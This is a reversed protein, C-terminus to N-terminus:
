RSVSEPAHGHSTNTANPLATVSTNSQCRVAAPNTPAHTNTTNDGVSSTGNGPSVTASRRIYTGRAANAGSTTTPPYAARFFPELRKKGRVPLGDLAPVAIATVVTKMVATITTKLRSLM